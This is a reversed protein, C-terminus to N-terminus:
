ISNNIVVIYLWVANLGLEAFIPFLSACAVVRAQWYRKASFVDCIEPVQQSESM